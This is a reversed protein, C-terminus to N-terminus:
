KEEECNLNLVPYGEGMAEKMKEQSEFVPIMGVCGPAFRTLDVVSFCSGGMEQKLDKLVAMPAYYNAM